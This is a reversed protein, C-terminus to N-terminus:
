ILSMETFYHETHQQGGAFFSPVSAGPREVLLVLSLWQNSFLRQMLLLSSNLDAQLVAASCLQPLGLHYSVTAQRRSPNCTLLAAAATAQGPGAM